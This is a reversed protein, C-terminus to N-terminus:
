QPNAPLVEEEWWEQFSQSRKGLTYSTKREWHFEATEGLMIRALTLFPLTPPLMKKKIAMCVEWSTLSSLSGLSSHTDHTPPLCPFLHEINSFISHPIDNVLM